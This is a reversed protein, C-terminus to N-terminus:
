TSGRGRGRKKAKRPAGDPSGSESIIGSFPTNDLPCGGCWEVRSGFVHHITRLLTEDSSDEDWFVLEPKSWDPKPVHIRIKEPSVEMLTSVLRDQVGVFRLDEEDSDDQGVGGSPKAEPRGGADGGADVARVVSLAPRGAKPKIPAGKKDVLVFEGNELRFLHVLPTRPPRLFMILKLATIFDHYMKYAQYHEWGNLVATFVDTMYDRLRFVLFGEMQMKREEGLYTRAVRGIEERRGPRLRDLARKCFAMVTEVNFADVSGGRESRLADRLLVPELDCVIFDTLCEAIEDLLVDDLPKRGSLAVTEDGDKKRRWQVRFEGDAFRSELRDRLGNLHGWAVGRATVSLLRM